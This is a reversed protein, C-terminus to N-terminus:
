DVASKLKQFEPDNPDLKGDTAIKQQAYEHARQADMNYSANLDDSKKKLTLAKHQEGMAYGNVAGRLIGDFIGAIAGGHTINGQPLPAPQGGFPSEMPVKINDPQQVPQYSTTPDYPQAAPM